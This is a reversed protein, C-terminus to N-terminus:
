GALGIDCPINDNSGARGAYRVLLFGLFARRQDAYCREEPKNKSRHEHNEKEIHNVQKLATLMKGKDNKCSQRVNRTPSLLFCHEFAKCEFLCLQERIDNFFVECIKPRFNGGGIIKIVFRSQLFFGFHQSNNESLELTCSGNNDM